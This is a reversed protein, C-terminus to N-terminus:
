KKYEPFSKVIKVLETFSDPKKIFSKAGLKFCQEMDKSNSLATLIIVPLDNIDERERLIKLVELGDLIPLKLDLLLIDPLKDGYQETLKELLAKGDSVFNISAEIGSEEIAKKIAFQDDLDDEASLITLIHEEMTSKGKLTIVETEGFIFQWFLHFLPSLEAHLDNLYKSLKFYNLGYVM